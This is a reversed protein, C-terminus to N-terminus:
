DKFEKPLILNLPHKIFLKKMEEVQYGAIGTGVATLLFKKHTLNNCVRYLRNRFIELDQFTFQNFNEDLTPLAYCKGTIGEGVGMEAGFQEYAQKSAGGYHKGALNSGFVFIENNKLSTIM